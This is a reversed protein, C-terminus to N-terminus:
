IKPQVKIKIIQKQTDRLLKRAWRMGEGHESYAIYDEGLDVIEEFQALAKEEFHNLMLAMAYNYKVLPDHPEQAFAASAYQLCGDKDDLIICYESLITQLYYEKPYHSIVIQLYKVLGKWDKDNELKDIIKSVRKKQAESAYGPDTDKVYERPYSYKLIKYFLVAEKKSFDSEIGRQRMALHEEMLLLAEKDKFLHFLCDAKYYRADNMVSKAWKTGYGCLAVKNEPMALIDNWEEMSQEYKELSWLIRGRTYNLLLCFTTSLVKAKDAFCLAEEDKHRNWLVNALQSLVYVDEPTKELAERILREARNYNKGYIM